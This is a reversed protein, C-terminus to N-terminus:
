TTGTDIGGCIDKLSALKRKGVQDALIGHGLIVYVFLRHGVNYEM